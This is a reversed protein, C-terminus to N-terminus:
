NQIRWSLDRLGQEIDVQNYINNTQNIVNGQVAGAGGGIEAYDLTPGQLGFSLDKAASEVKTMGREIGNVLGDTINKGFEAFVKSPSSIGLLGKVKSKVADAIDGAVDKVKQIADKIGKVLGEIIAKGTDYLWQGAGKFFDGIQAAVVKIGEWLSSAMNKIGDILGQIIAKGKEYLWNFAPAFFDIIRQVVGTIADWIKNWIGAIFDYVATFVTVIIDKYFNFANVIRDWIWQIVGSIVGYIANWVTVITNWIFGMVTSVVGWWFNFATVIINKLVTLVTLVVLLISGFVIIFLDKFFSLIPSVFNWIATFVSVVVKFLGQLFDTVKGVADGIWKGVKQFMNGFWELVDGGYKVALVIAGIAVTIPWFAVALVGLVVKKIVDFHDAIFGLAMALLKIAGIVVGVAIILPAFVVALLVMGIKKFVEAHDSVFQFVPALEKALVAGLEKVSTWLDKFVGGIIKFVPQMADLAKGVVDFKVQLFALLAILGVIAAGILTIPGGIVALVTGFATMIPVGASILTFLTSIVSIIPTLIALVKFGVFAAGLAAVVGVITDGNDVMWKFAGQVAPGIEKLKDIIKPIANSFRDFLGGPEIVLGLKPDVRVGLLNRGFELVTDKLTSLRGNLSQALVETGKFAFGGQQTTELLAQNFVDASIAGDEMDAKVQQVSKGLKKALITTIPINNNILQLADQGMLRGTANVQGFVVALSEFDAGTAAAIDGLMTVKSFVQDSSIGFGLLTRGAKAIQPFEFPTTNAYVALQGFLKNAVETNGTLVEMSKATQQLDAASKLFVTGAAGSGVTFLAFKKAVNAIGDAISNFSNAANAALNKFGVSGHKDIDSGLQKAKDRAAIVARDFQGTEADLIWVVSGGAINAM